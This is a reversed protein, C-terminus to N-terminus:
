QFNCNCFTIITNRYHLKQLITSTVHNYHCYCVSTLIKMYLRLTFVASGCYQRVKFGSKLGSRMTMMWRASNRVCCAGVTCHVSFWWDYQTLSQTCSGLFTTILMESHNQLYGSSMLKCTLISGALTLAPSPFPSTEFSNHKKNHQKINPLM